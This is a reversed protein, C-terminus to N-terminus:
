VVVGRGTVAAVAAACQDANGFIARQTTLVVDGEQVAVLVLEQGRGLDDGAALTRYIRRPLVGTNVLGSAWRALLWFAPARLYGFNTM